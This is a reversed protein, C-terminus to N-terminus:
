VIVIFLGFGIKSRSANYIRQTQKNGHCHKHKGPTMILAARSQNKM